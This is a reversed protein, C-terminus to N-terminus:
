HTIRQYLDTLARKASRDVLQSGSRARWGRILDPNVRVAATDIGAARAGALAADREGESAVELQPALKAHRAGLAKLERVIGPLLKMRGEAKLHAVLNAVLVEEDRGSAIQRSLAFAYEKEM